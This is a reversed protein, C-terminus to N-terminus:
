IGKEKNWKQFNMLKLYRAYIKQGCSVCTYIKENEDPNFYTEKGEKPCIALKSELKNEM